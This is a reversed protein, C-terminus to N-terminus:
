SIREEATDLKIKFGKLTNKLENITNKTETVEIQVKKYKEMEKNFNKIHEDMRRGLQTLMKKVM